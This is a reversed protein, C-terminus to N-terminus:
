VTLNVNQGLNAPQNVSSTNSSALLRPSANTANNTQASELQAIEAELQVIQEALQQIALLNAQTTANKQAAKLQKQDLALLKQLIAIQSSNSNSDLTIGTSSGIASLM